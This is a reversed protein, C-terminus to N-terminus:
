YKLKYRYEFENDSIIENNKNVDEHVILIEDDKIRICHIISIDNILFSRIKKSTITANM